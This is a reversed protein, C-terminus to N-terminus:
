FKARTRNDYVAQLCEEFDDGAWGGSTEAFKLLAGATSYEEEEDQAVEASLVNVRVRRGALEDAHAVIEEWAGELELQQLTM